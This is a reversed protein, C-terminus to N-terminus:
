CFSEKEFMMRNDNTPSLTIKYGNYGFYLEAVLYETTKRGSHLLADPGGQRSVFIQLNGSLMYQIMRFFSIFNSKGAGNCGVLVNLAGLELHCEEISKFGKFVIGSLQGRSNVPKM